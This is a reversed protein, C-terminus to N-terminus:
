GTECLARKNVKLGALPPLGGGRLGLARFGAFTGFAHVEGTKVSV